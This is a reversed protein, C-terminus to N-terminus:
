VYVYHMTIVIKLSTVWPYGKLFSDWSVKWCWAFWTGQVKVGVQVLIQIGRARLSAPRLSRWRPHWWRNISSFLFSIMIVSLQCKVMMMMMMMWGIHYTWGIYYIYYLLSYLITYKYMGCYLVSRWEYPRSKPQLPSGHPFVPETHVSFNLCIMFNSLLHPLNGRPIKRWRFVRRLYIWFFKSTSTRIWAWLSLLLLGFWWALVVKPM